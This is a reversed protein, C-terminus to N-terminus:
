SVDACKRRGEATVAGGKARVDAEEITVNTAAGRREIEEDEGVRGDGLLSHSWVSTFPFCRDHRSDIFESETELGGVEGGGGGFTIDLMIHWSNNEGGAAVSAVDVMLKVITEYREVEGGAAEISADDEDDKIVMIPPDGFVAIHDRDERIEGCDIEGAIASGVAERLGDDAELDM